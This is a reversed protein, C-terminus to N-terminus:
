KRRRKKEVFEISNVMKQIMIQNDFLTQYDDFTISLPKLFNKDYHGKVSMDHGLFGNTILLNAVGNHFNYHRNCDRYQAFILNQYDNQPEARYVSWINPVKRPQGEFFGNEFIQISVCTGTYDIIAVIEGSKSWLVSFYFEGNIFKQQAEESTIFKSEDLKDWHIPWQISYTVKSYQMDDDKWLEQKM